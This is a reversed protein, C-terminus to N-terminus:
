KTVCLGLASKIALKIKDCVEASQTEGQPPVPDDGGLIRNTYGHNLKAISMKTLTLKKTQQGKKKMVM